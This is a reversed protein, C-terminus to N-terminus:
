ATGTDLLEYPNPRARGGGDLLIPPEPLTTFNLCDKSFALHMGGPPPRKDGLASRARPAYVFGVMEGVIPWNALIGGSGSKITDDGIGPQNWAGNFYRKWNVPDPNAAPARAVYKVRDRM